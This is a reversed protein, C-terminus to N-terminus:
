KRGLLEKMKAVADYTEKNFRTQKEEKKIVKKETRLREIFMERRIVANYIRNNTIPSVSFLISEIKNLLQKGEDTMELKKNGHMSYEKRGSEKEEPTLRHNKVLGAYMWESLLEIAEVYAVQNKRTPSMVGTLFEEITIGPIKNICSLYILKRGDILGLVQQSIKGFYRKTVGPDDFEKGGYLEFSDIFTQLEEQNMREMPDIEGSAPKVINMFNPNFPSPTKTEVSGCMLKLENRRKEFVNSTKKDGKPRGM